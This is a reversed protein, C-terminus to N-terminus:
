AVLDIKKLNRLLEKKNKISATPNVRSLFELSTSSLETSRKALYDNFGKRATIHAYDYNFDYIKERNIRGVVKLCEKCREIREAPIEQRHSLYSAVKM